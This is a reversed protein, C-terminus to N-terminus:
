SFSSLIKVADKKIIVEGHEILYQRSELTSIHKQGYEFLFKEINVFENDELKRTELTLYYRENNLILSSKFKIESPIRKTAFTVTDISDFSFIALNINKVNSKKSKSPKSNIKLNEDVDDLQDLIKEDVDDTDRTLEGFINDKAEELKKRLTDLNINQKDVIKDKPMKAIKKELEDPDTVKTVYICIEELSIPVAEVLIPINNVDFGLEEYAMEMIEQFFDRAKDSGYALEVIKIDRELLDAKNVEIKIKNEEVLEFRM